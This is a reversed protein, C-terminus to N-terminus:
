LSKAFNQIDGFQAFSACEFPHTVGNRGTVVVNATGKKWELMAGNPFYQRMYGAADHLCEMEPGQVMPIGGYHKVATFRIKRALTTDKRYTLSLYVMKESCNLLRAIKARVAKTVEIYRKMYGKVQNITANVQPEAAKKTDKAATVVTVRRLSLLFNGLVM